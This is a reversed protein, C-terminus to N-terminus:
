LVVVLTGVGVWMFVERAKDLDLRACGHSLPWGLDAPSQVPKGREIPIGHLGVAGALGTQYRVMFKATGCRRECYRMTGSKSYATFLGPQDLGSETRVRRGSMLFTDVVRGDAEVLWVQQQDSHIVVRRGVGSSVPLPLMSNGTVVSIVGISSLVAGDAALAELGLTIVSGPAGPARLWLSLPGPGHDAVGVQGQVAMNRYRVAATGAPLRRGTVHFWGASPVSDTAVQVEARRVSEPRVGGEPVQSGAFAPTPVFMAALAVLV